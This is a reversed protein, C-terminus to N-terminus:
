TKNEMRDGVWLCIALSEAICNWYFYRFDTDVPFVFVMLAQYFLGSFVLAAFAQRLALNRIGSIFFLLVINLFFWFWPRMYPMHHQWRIPRIFIKSIINEHFRFGWPNKDIRPYSVSYYDTRNKIRLYYIFGELRNQLYIFPHARVAKKWALGASPSTSDTGEPVRILPDSEWEDDFTAPTYHKKMMGIDFDKHRTIVEPYFNEGTKKYIGTIDEMYLKYEPYTADTNFVINQIWHGAALFVLTVITASIKISNRKNKLLLFIFWLALPLVGPFANTRVWSGYTLLLFVLIAIATPIKKNRYSYNLLITFALLWSLAMQTDKVIFGAFNQVFPSLALLAIMVKWVDNHILKLFLFISIWLCALQYALMLAPGKHMYNLISWWGAMVPPHWDDYKQTIVQQYQEFSDIFMFGPHYAIYCLIFGAFCFLLAFRDNFFIKKNSM